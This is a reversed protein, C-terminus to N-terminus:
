TATSRLVEALRHAPCQHLVAHARRQGVQHQVRHPGPGHVALHGVPLPSCSSLCGHHKWGRRTLLLVGMSGGVSCPAPLGGEVAMRAPWASGRPLRPLLSLHAEDAPLCALLCLGAM